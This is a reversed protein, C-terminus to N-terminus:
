VNPLEMWHTIPMSMSIPLSKLFFSYDFAKNNKDIGLIIDEINLDYNRGLCPYKDPLMEKVSIWKSM